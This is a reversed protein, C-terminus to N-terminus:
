QGGSEADTIEHRICNVSVDTIIAEMKTSGSVKGREHLNFLQLLDYELGHLIELSIVDHNQIDACTGANGIEHDDGRAGGATVDLRNGVIHHFLRAFLAFSRQANFATGGTVPNQDIQAFDNDVDHQGGGSREIVKLAEPAIARINRINGFRYRRATGRPM